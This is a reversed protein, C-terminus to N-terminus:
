SFVVLSSQCKLCADLPQVPFFRFIWCLLDHIPKILFRYILLFHLKSYACNQKLMCHQDFSFCSQDMLKKHAGQFLNFNGQTHHVTNLTSCGGDPPVRFIRLESNRKKQGSQLVNHHSACKEYCHLTTWAKGVM